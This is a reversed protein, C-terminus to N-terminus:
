NMFEVDVGAKVLADKVWQPYNAETHGRSNEKVYLETFFDKVFENVKEEIISNRLKKMLNLLYYVNHFSILNVARENKPFQFYFYSRTYKACVECDCSPELPGFDFKNSENKVKLFGKNTLGTGFRATRTAFVCDFMDVGLLACIVLDQPYGVGMLYRPKDKPLYDTCTDVVKWFDEKSEGGALGGIAYGPLDRKVLEQTCYKRMELDLGGQVIAFLNQESPRTHASICRDIWRITRDCAAKLSGAESTPRLVDDLAMMIDSGLKNQIQISKEPTLMLLREDGEIHSQFEVGEETVKMLKSLSVMQFGGSDTLLNLPWKMYNHVGKYNQDIFDEGPELTLHYTNSLMLKCGMREMDCSLLGKMAAKTGVPMYVPTLVEGHPLTMKSARAKNFEAIIELKLPKEMKTTLHFSGNTFSNIIISKKPFSKQLLFM